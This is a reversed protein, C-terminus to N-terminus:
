PAVTSEERHAFQQLAELAECAYVLAPGGGMMIAVGLTEIIEAHEAGARLADHVHYAVCGDCRSTIAIALAILEKHKTRLAGAATSEKHLQGFATMVSPAETGLSRLLRQLHEYREPYTQPTSM